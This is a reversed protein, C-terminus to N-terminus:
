KQATSSQFSETYDYNNLWILPKGNVLDQKPKFKDTVTIADQAGFFPKFWCFSLGRGEDAADMDDMITFATLGEWNDVNWVNKFYSFEGLLVMLSTKGTRSPGIIILGKPRQEMVEGTMWRRVWDDLWTFWFTM